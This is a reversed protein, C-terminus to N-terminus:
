KHLRFAVEKLHILLQIFLYIHLILFHGMTISLFRFRIIARSARHM